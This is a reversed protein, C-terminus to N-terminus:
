EMASGDEIAFFGRTFPEFHWSTHPAGIQQLV